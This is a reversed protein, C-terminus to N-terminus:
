RWMRFSRMGLAIIIVLTAAVGGLAALVYKGVTWVEAGTITVTM